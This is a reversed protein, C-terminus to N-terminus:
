FTDTKVTKEDKCFEIRCLKDNCLRKMRTWFSPVPLDDHHIIFGSAFGPLDTRLLAADISVLLNSFRLPRTFFFTSSILFPPRGSVVGLGLEDTDSLKSKNGSEGM